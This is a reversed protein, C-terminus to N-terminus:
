SLLAAESRGFETMVLYSAHIWRKSKSTTCTGPLLCEPGSAKDRLGQAGISKPSLKSSSSSIISLAKKMANVARGLVTIILVAVIDIVSSTLRSELQSSREISNLLMTMARWLPLGSPMLSLANLSSFFFDRRNMIFSLMSKWWSRTLAGSYLTTSSGAALVDM